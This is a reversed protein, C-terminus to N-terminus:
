KNQEMSFKRPPTNTPGVDLQKGQCEDIAHWTLAYLACRGGPNLFQGLRTRIILNVEILSETARSLTQGHKFGFDKLCGMAANIDGNNRGNYQYVMANLLKVANGSLSRYDDTDMVVHPIGMFRHKSGRRTNKKYTM